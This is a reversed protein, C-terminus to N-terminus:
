HRHNTLMVLKELWYLHREMNREVGGKAQQLLISALLMSSSNGQEAGKEAWKLAQLYKERDNYGQAIKYCTIGDPM